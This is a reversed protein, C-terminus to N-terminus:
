KAALAAHLADLAELASALDVQGPASAVGLSCFTLASGFSEGALRTIAGAPGMSMTLLVVDLCAAARATAEMLRAADAPSNAMVALKPISAGLDAMRRLEDTMWSTEPTGAFDHHSVIAHKGHGRALRALERVCTDGAASEIDIIDPGGASILSRVLQVYEAGDAELRGGQGKTRLTAILPTRPLADGLARATAVLEGADHPNRSFDARWEVCDAGAAVARRASAVVDERTVDLVPVITKPRGEGIRVDKISLAM